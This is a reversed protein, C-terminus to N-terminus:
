KLIKDVIYAAKIFFWLYLAIIIGIFTGIISQLWTHCKYYIVRSYMMLYTFYILIIMVTILYIDIKKNYHWLILLMWMSFFGMIQSHGSPLGGTESKKNNEICNCHLSQPRKALIHWKKNTYKKLLESTIISIIIGILL